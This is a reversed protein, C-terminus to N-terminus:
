RHDGRESLAAAEPGGVPDTEYVPSIAAVDIGPADVLADVAGQLMELRDGLNNGLGLVARTGHNVPPSTM